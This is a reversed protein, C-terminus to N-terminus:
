MASKMMSPPNIVRLDRASSPRLPMVDLDRVVRCLSCGQFRIRCSRIERGASGPTANLGYVSATEVRQVAGRLQRSM